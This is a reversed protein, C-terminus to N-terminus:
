LNSAFNRSEEGAPLHTVWQYQPLTDVDIMLNKLVLSISCVLNLLFTKKISNHDMFTQCIQASLEFLSRSEFQSSVTAFNWMRPCFSLFVNMSVQGVEVKRIRSWKGAISGQCCGRCSSESRHGGWTKSRGAFPWYQSSRTAEVRPRLRRNQRRRFWDSSSDMRSGFFFNNAYFYVSIESSWMHVGLACTFLQIKEVWNLLCFFRLM